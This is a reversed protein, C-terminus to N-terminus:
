EARIGADRIAKSWRAAEAKIFATTEANSLALPTLGLERMRGAVGPRRLTEAIADALKRTVAEPTKPPAVFAYWAVNLYGPYLEAIAPVQALEPIRVESGVAIAKLSRGAIHTRVDAFNGFVMDVQGALTDTIAPTLGRNYPIRRIEIRAASKLMEMALHPTGGIGVSAYTLKDPYAKAHAILERLSAAPVKPHAVLVNPSTAILAIVSFAAPDYNLKTYLSQNIVLPSAWTSLLTYGDPAAKFVFEAGLNGGAGPRHEIVVPQGWRATLAEGLLRPILDPAGGPGSPVVVRIPRSPYDSQAAAASFTTALAITAVALRLLLSRAEPMLCGIHARARGGPAM